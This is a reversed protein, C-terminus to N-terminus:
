SSTPEAMSSELEKILAGIDQLIGGMPAMNLTLGTCPRM